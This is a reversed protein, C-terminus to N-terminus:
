ELKRRFLLKLFALSKEYMIIKQSLMLVLTSIDKSENDGSQQAKEIRTVCSKRLNENAAPLFINLFEQFSLFGDYDSDFDKLIEATVQDLCHGDLDMPARKGRTSDIIFNKLEDKCIMNDHKIDFLRFLAQPQFDKSACLDQRVEEINCEHEAITLM